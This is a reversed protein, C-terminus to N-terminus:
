NKVLENIKDISSSADYAYADAKILDAFEQSVPAGGIIVKIKDKYGKEELITIVKQMNVMTTTLLASLGIAIAGNEIAAEVYKEPPVDRGLDIIEYGASELMIGVLNKGIDHLDGQVTGIVVKGKSPIMSGVFLPKLLELGKHMCKASMLVDPLFIEHNKFRESIVNMGALLGNGLIDSADNKEKIAEEVLEYTKESDGNILVESIETLIKM